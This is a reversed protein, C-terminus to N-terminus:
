YGSRRIAHYSSSATRYGKVCGASCGRCEYAYMSGWGDGKSYVFIHGAGGSRYVLADAKKLNSRSVTSWQSTDNDFDATSYPHSDVTMDSNSSPVQWVKATFGSCDGGWQGSHSCDPCSGSCSGKTSSTPGNPSFRGHGWWYSYGVGAEARTMAEDAKTPNTTGPDPNTGGGGGGATSESYYKGSSWGVTGQYDINYFGNSPTANLVKVSAGTPVVTLIAYTTDPGKRLNVDATAVLTAANVTGSSGGTPEYYQGYSWGVTGNHKIKYFGNSPSAQQVTVVAGEPITYLISASKSAASRLNVNATAKLESGVALTGSVGEGQTGVDESLEESDPDQPAAACASMGFSVVAVLSAFSFTRVHSWM